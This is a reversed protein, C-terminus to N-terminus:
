IVSYERGDLEFGSKTHMISFRKFFVIYEELSVDVDIIHVPIPGNIADLAARVTDHGPMDFLYATISVTGLKGRHNEGVWLSSAIVFQDPGKLGKKELFDSLTEGDADDAAATGKWDGYQATAKFNSM